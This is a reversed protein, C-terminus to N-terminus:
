SRRAYCTAFRASQKAYISVQYCHSSCHYLHHLHYLLLSPSISLTTLRRHRRSVSRKRFRGVQINWKTLTKRWSFARMAAALATVVRMRLRLRFRVTPLGSTITTNINHHSHTPLSNSYDVWHTSSTRDQRVSTLTPRRPLQNSPRRKTTSTRRITRSTM